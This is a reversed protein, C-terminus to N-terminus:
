DRQRGTFQLIYLFLNMFDLYLALAGLLAAKGMTKPDSLLRMGIQKIKQTDYAILVTFIVIGIASLIYQTPPSKLFMNILLGIILGFLGMIAINGVRTLDAKTVYGYAAMAAFMGATTFFALYISSTTYVKFIISLTFGLSIAYLFFIITAVTISMRPLALSLILVLLLQLLLIGFLIGPKNEIFKFLAPTTAVYYATVATVTLALTMLGYVRYMFNALRTSISSTAYDIDM